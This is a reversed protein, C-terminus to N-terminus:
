INGFFQFEAGIFIENDKITYQPLPCNISIIKIFELITWKIYMYHTLDYSAMKEKPEACILCVLGFDHDLCITGQIQSFIFFPPLLFRLWM